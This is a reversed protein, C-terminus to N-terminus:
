AKAGHGFGTKILILVASQLQRELHIVSAAPSRRVREKGGSPAGSSVPLDLGILILNWNRFFFQFAMGTM